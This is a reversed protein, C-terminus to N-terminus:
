RSTPILFTSSQLVFCCPRSQQTPVMQTWKSPGTFTPRPALAGGVAARIMLWRLHQLRASHGKVKSRQGEVRSATKATRKSSDQAVQSTPVHMEVLVM